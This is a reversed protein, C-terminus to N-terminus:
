GTSLEAYMKKGVQGFHQIVKEVCDRHSSFDAVDLPLVLYNEEFPLPFIRSALESSCVFCFCFKINVIM